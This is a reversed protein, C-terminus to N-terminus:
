KTVWVGAATMVYQGATAREILNAGARVEVVALPQNQKRAIEQYRARRRTNVDDVLAQVGRGDRVIGVYGDPREGVAGSARAEDLTLAAAPGATFLGLVAAGGILGRRSIPTM